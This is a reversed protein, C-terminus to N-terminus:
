QARLLSDKRRWLDLGPAGRALLGLTAPHTAPLADSPAVLSASPAETQGAIIRRDPVTEYAYGSLTASIVPKSGRFGAKVVSFRAWGYHTHGQVVFKLGLFRDTTNAFPGNVYLFSNSDNFATAMVMPAFLFLQRPGIAQGPKLANAYRSVGIVGNQSSGVFAGTVNLTRQYLCCSGGASQNSVIYDITGDHNLDIPLQGNTLKVQIPTYVVEARLPQSVVLLGAGAAGAALAYLNLQQRVPESLKSPKRLVSQMM